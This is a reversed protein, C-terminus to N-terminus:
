TGGATQLKLTSEREVKAGSYDTFTEKVVVEGDTIRTVVGGNRGLKTGVAVTYGKGEADEILALYGKAGWLVGVFRLDGLEYRQLPPLNELPVRATRVPGKIFPVFPDRKGAPDYLVIPAQKPSVAGPAPASEAAKAVEKSVPKRVVPAPPPEEKSCRAALGAAMLGVLLVAITVRSPHRKM